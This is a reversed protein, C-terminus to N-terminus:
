ATSGLAVYFFLFTPCVFTKRSPYFSLFFSGCHFSFSNAGRAVNIASNQHFRDSTMRLCTCSGSPRKIGDKAKLRVEGTPSSRVLAHGDRGGNLDNSYGWTINEKAHSTRLKAGFVPRGFFPRQAIKKSYFPHGINIINNSCGSLASSSHM